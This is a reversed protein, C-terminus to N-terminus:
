CWSLGIRSAASVIWDSETRNPDLETGKNEMGWGVRAGIQNLGDAGWSRGILIRGAWDSRVRCRDLGDSGICFRDSGIGALGFETGIPDRQNQDSGICIM